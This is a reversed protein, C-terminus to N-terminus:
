EETVWSYLDPMPVQTGALAHTCDTLFNFVGATLFSHCINETGRGTLISPSLTPVELNGDWTWFPKNPFAAQQEPTANVPLMHLGGRPKGEDDLTECGPCVFWLGQYTVGNETITGLRCKM